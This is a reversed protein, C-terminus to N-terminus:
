RATMRIVDDVQRMNTGAERFLGDAHYSSRVFPGSFVASFGMERAARAYRDFAGPTVYERVPVQGASPQLYQGITLVTCGSGRLDKMTQLIEPASEGLGVMIGSKVPMLPRAAAAHALLALSRDYDAQPRVQPYLRRVTEVNHNFVDVGSALVTDAAAPDGQFDPVLVEVRIAGPLGKVARVVAAYHSAGGDPLDDRTVSTIVAYRIGIQAVFAALRDPETPDPPLPTGHRVHCYRCARSCIDGLILFTATGRGFCEGRNPCSAEECVTHLGGAALGARVAGTRGGGPIPRKLWDPMRGRHRARLDSATHVATCTM